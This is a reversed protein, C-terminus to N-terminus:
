YGRAMQYIERYENVLGDPLFKLAHLGETNIADSLADIWDMQLFKQMAKTVDTKTGSLVQTGTASHALIWSKKYWPNRCLSYNPNVIKCVQKKENGKQDTFTVEVNGSKSVAAAYLEAEWKEILEQVNNRALADKLTNLETQSIM